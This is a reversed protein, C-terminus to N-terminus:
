NERNARKDIKMNQKTQDNTKNTNIINIRYVFKYYNIIIYYYYCGTKKKIM